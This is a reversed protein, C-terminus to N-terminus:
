CFNDIITRSVKNIRLTQNYKDNFPGQPFIFHRVFPACTQKLMFSGVGSIPDATSKIPNYGVYIPHAFSNSGELVQDVTLHEALQAVPVLITKAPEGGMFVGTKWLVILTFLPAIWM